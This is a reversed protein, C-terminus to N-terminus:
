VIQVQKKAKWAASILSRHPQGPSSILVHGINDDSLIDEFNEVWEVEPFRHHLVSRSPQHFAFAKKVFLAGSNKQLTETVDDTRTGCEILATGTTTAM